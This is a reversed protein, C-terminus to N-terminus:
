SLFGIKSVPVRVHVAEQRAGTGINLRFGNSGTERNRVEKNGVAVM